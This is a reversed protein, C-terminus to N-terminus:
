NQLRSLVESLGQQVSEFIPQQAVITQCLANEQNNLKLLDPNSMKFDGLKPEIAM